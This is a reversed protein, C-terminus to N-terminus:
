FLLRAANLCAFRADNACDAAQGLKKLAEEQNSELFHKADRVASLALDLNQKAFNIDQKAKAMEEPTTPPLETM